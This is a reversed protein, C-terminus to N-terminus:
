RLRRLRQKFRTKWMRGYRRLVGPPLTEMPACRFEVIDAFDARECFRAIAETPDVGKEDLVREM